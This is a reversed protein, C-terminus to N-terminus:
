CTATSLFSGKADCVKEKRGRALNTDLSEFEDPFFLKLM